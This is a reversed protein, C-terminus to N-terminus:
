FQRRSHAESKLFLAASQPASYSDQEMTLHSSLNM